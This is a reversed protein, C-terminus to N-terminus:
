VAVRGAIARAITLSDAYDLEGGVPLGFAIRTTPLALAKLLKALYLSTTDGEVTPPLALIVEDIPPQEAESASAGFTTVEQETHSEGQQCRALLARITLDDPGLGELPSILGHLVHYHHNVESTRELAYLDEPHAVVCIVRPNRNPSACIECPSHESWNFCQQCKGVAEKVNVLAQAFAEADSRPQKLVHFALRQATKPGIGPLKQFHDVLNALPLTFPHRQSLHVSM